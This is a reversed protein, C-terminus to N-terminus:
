QMLLTMEATEFRFRHDLGRSTKQWTGKFLPWQSQSQLNLNFSVGYAIPQVYIYSVKNESLQPNLVAVVDGEFLKWFEKHAEGFLFLLINGDKSLNTLRRHTRFLSLSLSLTHTHKQTHKQTHTHTHTHTLTHTHTHTHANHAEGFLLINGDKSMNTLRRRTLTLFLLRTHANTHTNIHTHLTHREL